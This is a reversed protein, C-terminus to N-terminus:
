CDQSKRIVLAPNLMIHSIKTSGNILDMLVNVAEKGMEELPQKIYSLPSSYLDFSEGGDFGIFGMEEPIRICNNQAFYLGAVSLGNNAFVMADTKKNRTLFNGLVNEIDGQSNGFKVEVLYNTHDLGSNKLAEVYGRIREKMHMLSSRYAVMAIHKFGKDVFYSTAEYTAQYNNLVVHSCNIEPFYRDVLVLPLKKKILSNVQKNTGEAPVIIIGDVQRNILTNLLFGSKMEDEDSSGFIVTFGNKFAEDEIIRALQGFFPNAIDAVILGITKTSGIRLSRAIQNPQYNLEEAAQRIKKVVEVGVRKEKEKGNMVYSVLAVSVGVKKAIDKLSVRKEMASPNSKIGIKRGRKRIVPGKFIKKDYL